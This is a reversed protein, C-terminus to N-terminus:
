EGPHPSGRRGCRARRGCPLPLGVARCTRITGRRHLPGAATAPMFHRSLGLARAASRCRPDARGRAHVGRRGPPRAAGAHRSVRVAGGRRRSQGARSPRARGGRLRRHQEIMYGDSVPRRVTVRGAPALQELAAVDLGAEEATERGLTQAISEGAGVLGGMLTDWLGPDTAKDLARQQVWWRGATTRGILHVAHTAIGLPRVAAREVVARRTGGVDDVALLEGRWRSCLGHADLWGAISALAEDAGGEILWRDPTGRLPLGAAQLRRGLAPEISGVEVAEICLPGRPREPPQDARRHLAALWARDPFRRADAPLKEVDASRGKADTPPGKADAHRGKADTPPTM